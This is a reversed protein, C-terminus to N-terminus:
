LNQYREYCAILIRTMEARTMNKQPYLYGDAGQLIEEELAWEVANKETVLDADKFQQILNGTVNPSGFFRYLATVFDERSIDDNPKFSGNNQEKMYGQSTTWIVADAYWDNVKVDEYVARYEIEKEGSLNLIVQAAQAKTVKGHPHFYGFGIGVMISHQSAKTVVDYYWDQPLVDYYSHEPLQYDPSFMDVNEHLGQYRQNSFDYLATTDEQWNRNGYWLASNNQGSNALIQEYYKLSHLSGNESIATEEGLVIDCILPEFDNQYIEKLTECFDSINLLAEGMQSNRVSPGFPTDEVDYDAIFGKGFSLDYDWLPGMIFRDEGARKSLYASSQFCDRSKSFENIIYYCALSHKDMYDSYYKNTQPNVGGEFVADEYEQYFTAIYNMEEKSAYEPSKVVVYQNRKTRIYCIEELAREKYDMELLYGGTIDEPSVMGDCYTYTAGNDTSGQLMPFEEFNKDPNVNQNETELDTVPVRGAEVEVKEALFYMGRYEGDYYLTISEGQINVPMGLALGLNLALSNRVGVPDLYNALLVWTKSKNSEDGTCILDAADQLKIQYPKKVQGWTSNGRGKIQTLKGSHIVEGNESLLVMSGKAKNSKDLSSEVWERGQNEIDDSSLFLSPIHSEFLIELRYVALGNTFELLYEEEGCLATLDLTQGSVFEMESLPGKVVFSDASDCFLTVRKDSLTSPIVLTDVDSINEANIRTEPISSDAYTYFRIPNEVDDAYGAMGCFPILLVCVLLLIMWMMQYSQLFNKM